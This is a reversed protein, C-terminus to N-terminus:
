QASGKGASRRRFEDATESLLGSLEEEGLTSEQIRILTSEPILFPAHTGLMVRASPISRLLNAIGDTGEVRATDFYIGPTAGLKELLPARPRYNLIQVTAGAAHQMVDPLPSLDVDPVSLRPHQTRTDELCAAIQVFRQKERASALLKSFPPDDLAYGHYNPHLRVGPMKHEDFCRRLDGEWDPLELNISGIPVLETYRACVAALRENVGTIDRHLLGEFSGAWAETIGLSRVKNVLLEPEDLPLRRFPWLFLSVNTDIIRLRREEDIPKTSGANSGFTSAAGAAVTLRLLDRRNM